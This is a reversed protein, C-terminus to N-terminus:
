ELMPARVDGAVIRGALLERQWQECEKLLADIRRADDLAPPHFWHEGLIVHVADRAGPTQELRAVVAAEAPLLPHEEDMTAHQLFSRQWRDLAPNWYLMQLDLAPLGNRTPGPYQEPKLVLPLLPRGQGDRNAKSAGDALPVSALVRIVRIAKRDEDLWAAVGKGFATHGPVPPELGDRELATFVRRLNADRLRDLRIHVGGTQAFHETLTPHLVITDLLARLMALAKSETARRQWVFLDMRVGRTPDLMTIAWRPAHDVGFHDNMALVRWRYRDDRGAKWQPSDLPITSGTPSYYRGISFRQLAEDAKERMAPPLLVINLLEPDREYGGWDSKPDRTFQLILPQSEDHRALQEDRGLSRDAGVLGRAQFGRPLSATALAHLDGAATAEASDRERAQARSYLWAGAVVCCIAIVLGSVSRIEM